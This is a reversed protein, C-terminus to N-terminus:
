AGFEAPYLWVLSACRSVLCPFPLSSSFDADPHERLSLTGFCIVIDVLISKSGMALHEQPHQAHYGIVTEQLPFSYAHVRCRQLGIRGHSGNHAPISPCAM